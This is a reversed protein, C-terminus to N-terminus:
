CNFVNMGSTRWIGTARQFVNGVAQKFIYPSPRLRQKRAHSLWDFPKRWGLTLVTRPSEGIQLLGRYTCSTDYMRKAAESYEMHLIIIRTPLVLRDASSPWVDVASSLTRRIKKSGVIYELYTSV